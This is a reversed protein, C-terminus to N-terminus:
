DDLFKSYCQPYEYHKPECADCNNGAVNKKCECTGSNKNCENSGDKTGNVNCTCEICIYLFNIDLNYSKGIYFGLNSM